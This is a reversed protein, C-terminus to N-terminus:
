RQKVGRKPFCRCGGAQRSNLLPVKRVGASMGPVSIGAAGVRGVSSLLHLLQLHILDLINSGSGSLPDLRDFQGSALVGHQCEVRDSSDHGRRYGSDGGADGRVRRHRARRGREM